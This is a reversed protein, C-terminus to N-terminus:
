PRWDAYKLDLFADLAVGGGERGWGSEKMGGLPAQPAATNIDNVGIIGCELSDIVRFARAADKTYVYGALGSQDRNVTALAEDEDRFARIAAVPGFTEETSLVMQPTWGDIVTPQFYRDPGGRHVTSGGLLLRAGKALADTVHRRVRSVAADGILPGFSVGPERGDGVRLKGAAEVFSGIFEAYINEHILFRNASVCTQGANRFKITIADAVASDLDADEFVIFPANGGLELVLRTLTTASKKVLTKGVQRSGSFSIVKVAPQAILEEAIEAPSGTIINLVGPPIGAQTALEGLILSSVPAKESPKLVVTCGAALAPGIKRAVLAVPYNWPTIAGAVGAPRRVTILRKGPTSCPLMEGNVRRGEEASWAIFAAGLSVEGAAEALPKGCESTITEILLEANKLILESYTELIQYRADPTTESWAPFASEACEVAKATEKRGAAPISAISQDTAPDLVDFRMGSDAEVWDPGILNEMRKM